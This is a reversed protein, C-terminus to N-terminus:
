LSPEQTASKELTIDDLVVDLAVATTAGLRVRDAWTTWTGVDTTAFPSGFADDRSDLFAELVAAAGDGAQQRMGIHSADMWELDVRTSSLLTAILSTPSAPASATPSGGSPGPMADTALTIDDLVGELATNTTAGIRLRDAPTTWTGATTAAFPAAFANDGSAVFAELVGTAGTGAQQHLGVRYLQGVALPASEAGITTSGM